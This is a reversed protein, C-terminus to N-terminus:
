ILEGFEPPFCFLKALQEHLSTWVFLSFLSLLASSILSCQESADNANLLAAKWNSRYSYSLFHLLIDFAFARCFMLSYNLTKTPVMKRTILLQNEAGHHFSFSENERDDSIM